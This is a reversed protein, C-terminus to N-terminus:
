ESQPCKKKCRKPCKKISKQSREYKINKGIENTEREKKRRKKKKPPPPVTYVQYKTHESIELCKISAINGEMLSISTAHWELFLFSPQLPRHINPMKIHPLCDSFRQCQQHCHPWNTPIKVGKM